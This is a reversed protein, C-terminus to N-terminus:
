QQGKNKQSHNESSRMRDQQRRIQNDLKKIAEKDAPTKNPQRSLKNREGKLDDIKGKASAVRDPNTKQANRGGGKGFADRADRGRNRAQIAEFETKTPPGIRSVGNADDYGSANEKKFQEYESQQRAADEAADKRNLAEKANEVEKEFEKDDRIEEEPDEECEPCHGDADVGALPNNRMYDYLNLTQPDDLKSYPVPEVKASWDPSLFRGMTSAYYRAGFYDNGSETDREKGTYCSACAAARM